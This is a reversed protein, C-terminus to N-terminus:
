EAYKIETPNQGRVPLGDAPNTIKPNVNAPVLFPNCLECPKLLLQRLAKYKPRAVERVQEACTATLFRDMYTYLEDLQQVSEPIEQVPVFASSPVEVEPGALLPDFVGLYILFPVISTILIVMRLMPLYSGKNKVAVTRYRLTM